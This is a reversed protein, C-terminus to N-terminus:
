FKYKFNILGSHDQYDERFKGEYGLSVEINDNVEATVGAGFEMGFRDLSDGNVKYSSGNALSVISDADSDTLDYTAAVRVEPKLVINSDNSYSTGAKLGIVGTLIDSDDTSISQGASDTYSDQKVHLYRLGAEPAIDFGKVTYVYGTMAQLGFTEADYDATVKLGSANKDESYDSWGYTAVGNVYWNNPKYEGYVIATHTKADTDRMFGDIDTKTYAYGIGLKVDDTYQSELGLATGYSKSDFGKSSSTDDLKAKNFLGQIWAVVRQGVSDGSSMGRHGGMHGGGMHSSQFRNGVAGFIQQTNQQSTHSVSPAADPALATLAETYKKADNQSLDNLHNAVNKVNQSIKSDDTNQAISDWAESMQM